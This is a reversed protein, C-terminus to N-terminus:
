HVPQGGAKQSAAALAEVQSLIKDLATRDLLRGNTVVTNIRTTNRIDDLPNADLLVLDAIKGTAVAGIDAARDFFRAPNITATRLAEGPTLGASVFLALEDHLSFGPLCYPNLVDTGALLGVGAAKMRGVAGIQKGYLWRSFEVLETPWTKMAELNRSWVSLASWPMYKLRPDTTRAADYTEASRLVTLTPTQWTHNRKFRELVAKEKKTSFFDRILRHKQIMLSPDPPSGSAGQQQITSLLDRLEPERSSSAEPWGSLHEISRMGADSAERASVLQPVHGAFTLGQKKTEDLIAFFSERSLHTYVKIFDAGEAKAKRVAQRAEAETPVISFASPGGPGDITKSAIVMHPGLLSGKDIEDRWEHHLKSGLMIRVGTVGNATFLPLYAKEDWHVHMDWLGPMLFKGRADLLEAGTPADLSGSKGMASIRGGAVVVTMDPMVRGGLVDIVSVHTFAFVSPAQQAMARLSLMAIAVLLRSSDNM